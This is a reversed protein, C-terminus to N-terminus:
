SGQAPRYRRFVQRLNDLLAAGAVPQPSPQVQWHPLSAIDEDLSRAERVERDLTAVRVGLRMAADNRQQDYELKSLKALRAVEDPASQHAKKADVEECCSEFTSM